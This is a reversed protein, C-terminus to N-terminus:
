KIHKIAKLALKAHRRATTSAVDTAAGSKINRLLSFHDEDGSVRVGRPQEAAHIAHFICRYLDQMTDRLMGPQVNAFAERLANPQKRAALIFQTWMEATAIDFPTTRAASPVAELIPLLEKVRGASALAEAVTLLQDSSLGNNEVQEQWRKFWAVVNLRFSWGLSALVFGTHIWPGPFAFLLDRHKKIRGVTEAGNQISALSSIYGVVEYAVTEDHEDHQKIDQKIQKETKAFGPKWGSLMAWIYGAYPSAQKNAISERLVDRIRISAADPLFENIGEIAYCSDESRSAFFIADDFISVKNEKWACLATSALLHADESSKYREGILELGDNPRGIDHYLQAAKAFAYTASPNIRCIREYLEIASDRDSETLFYAAFALADEDGGAIDKLKIAHDEAEERKDSSYLREILQRRLPMNHPEKRVSKRMMDLAEDSRGAFWILDIIRSRIPDPIVGAFADKVAASRLYEEAAQPGQINLVAQSLTLHAKVSAPYKELASRAEAIAREPQDDCITDAAFLRLAVNGPYQKLLKKLISLKYKNREAPKGENKNNIIDVTHWAPTNLPERKLAEYAQAGAQEFDGQKILAMSKISYFNAAGPNARIAKDIMEIARSAQEAQESEVFWAIVSPDYPDIRYARLMAQEAEEPSGQQQKVSALLQWSGVQMPFRKCCLKAHEEADFLDGRVLDHEVLQMIASQLDPRQKALTLLRKHISESSLSVAALQHWVVVADDIMTHTILTNWIGKLLKAKDYPDTVSMALSHIAEANGPEFKFAKMYASTAEEHRGARELISGHCIHTDVQEPALTISHDIAEFAADNNNLLAERISIERWAWANSPDLELLGALPEAYRDLAFWRTNPTVRIIRPHEGFEFTLGTGDLIQLLLD